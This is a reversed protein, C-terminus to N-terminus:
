WLSTATFKKSLWNALILVTSNVASNLLGVATSFSFDFQEMGLKYVYTSIIESAPLNAPTQLLFDKEYGVSLLQGCRLIFLTIITPVLVPFNIYVIKQLRTAGDIEAAEQLSRDVGSLAAFYIITSWGTSQWVGSLVYIWKFCGPRQMFDVAQLGFLKLLHNIIGTNTDLFLIVIGCLVVTSVFHPAYSVTQFCSRIRRNEVENVMLSLVIPLPFTVILTLLSLTFTNKLIVPFWYSSFLRKFNDFGVWESGWIGPGFSYDKFAIIVGYIPKYHFILMYVIAPLMMLYVSWHKWTGTRQRVGERALSMKTYQAPM